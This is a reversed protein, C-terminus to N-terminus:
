KFVKGAVSKAFKVFKAGFGTQDNEMEKATHEASQALTNMADRLAELTHEEVADVEEKVSSSYLAGSKMSKYLFHVFQAVFANANSITTDVEDKYWRIITGLEGLQMLQRNYDAIRQKILGNIERNDDTQPLSTVIQRQRDMQQTLEVIMVAMDGAGDLFNTFAHNELFGRCRGL